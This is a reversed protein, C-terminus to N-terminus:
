AKTPTAKAPASKAPAAKTPTPKPPRSWTTPDDKLGELVWCAIPDRKGKVEIPDLPRAIALHKIAAHTTPGLVVQGAEAVEQELRAALNVTDGIATFNRFEDSGINGILAPGTNIGVRFRPWDPQYEAVAEIAAQMGLAARAARLAHDPQRAPANFLVMVADGVFQVVTGGNALLVPVARGFYQNLMAVVRDPSTRESFPTFGRLDAFLVTVEAVDGGLAAQTTPGIVVQGAEAVEQELRAALNVTDGIATFNRFEDSGINGILAPGTNVGVRFRPWDTEREAVAEIAAQMGLAARAARVAHDPQRAPANFLAMVADGVFQVVTGGNALLVPVARGFYQNLMGVVRDPPTRESFPTFGRLDAFLVTVEAVEGGLAAQTPDA